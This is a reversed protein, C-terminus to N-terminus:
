EDDIKLIHRVALSFDTYEELVQFDVKDIIQYVEHRRNFALYDFSNHGLFLLDKHLPHFISTNTISIDNYNEKTYIGFITADNYTLGNFHHLFEIFREPMLPFNNQRLEQQTTIILTSSISSNQGTITQLINYINDM